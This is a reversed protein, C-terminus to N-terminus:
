AKSGPYNDYADIWEDGPAPETGDISDLGAAIDEDSLHQPAAGHIEGTDRDIQERVVDQAPVSEPFARRLALREAAIQLMHMSRQQWIKTIKGDRNRGVVERAWVQGEFDARSGDPLTRGVVYRCWTPLSLSDIKEVTDAFEVRSGAYCGTRVAHARLGNISLVPTQKGDIPLIVVPARMPDLKTAQCYRLIMMLSQSTAGPHLDQLSRFVIPEIGMKALQQSLSPERRAPAQNSNMM